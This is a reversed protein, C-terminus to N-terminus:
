PQTCVATLHISVGGKGTADVVLTRTGDGESLQALGTGGSSSAPNSTDIVTGPPQGASPSNIDVDIYFSATSTGPVLDVASFSVDEIDHHASDQPFEFDFGRPFLSPFANGCARAPGTSGFSGNAFENVYIGPGLVASVTTPWGTGSDSSEATAGPAASTSPEIVPTTEPELTAAAVTQNPKTTPTAAPLGAACGVSLVLTLALIAVTPVFRIVSPCCLSDPDM